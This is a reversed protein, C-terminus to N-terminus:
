LASRIIGTPMRGSYGEFIATILKVGAIMLVRLAQAERSQRQLFPIEQKVAKKMASVGGVADM